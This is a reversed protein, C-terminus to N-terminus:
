VVTSWGHGTYTLLNNLVLFKHALYKFYSHTSEPFALILAEWLGKSETM